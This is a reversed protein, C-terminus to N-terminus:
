FQGTSLMVLTCAPLVEVNQKQALTILKPNHTGPNFIIREPKLSLIYDYWEGQNHPGLYLTVTHVDEIHPKERLDRIEEGFVQGKKIGVPVFPISRQSLMKAAAYAYRAPNSTAGIIVTKKM